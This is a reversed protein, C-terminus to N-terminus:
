CLWCEFDEFEVVLCGGGFVDVEEYVEVVCLGDEYDILVVVFEGLILLLDIWEGVGGVLVFVL